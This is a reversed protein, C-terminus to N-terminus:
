FCLRLEEFFKRIPEYIAMSLIALGYTTYSILICIILGIYSNLKYIKWNSIGLVLGFFLPFFDFNKIIGSALASFIAPLFLNLLIKYNTM